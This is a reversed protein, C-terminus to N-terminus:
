VVLHSIVDKQATVHPLFRKMLPIVAPYLMMIVLFSTWLGMDLPLLARILPEHTVLVMISYRGIYSFYPLHGTHMCLAILCLIGCLGTIYCQVIQLVPTEAHHWGTAVYVIAIATLVKPTLRAQMKRSRFIHGTIFFPMYSLMRDISAPLTPAHDTAFISGMLLALLLVAWDAKVAKRMAYFLLNGLFLAWLFWLPINPYRADPMLFAWLTAWGEKATNFHMGLTNALMTPLLVSTTIYFFLFPILLRDTKKAAFTAIGGYDKFFFGSLFFYLPMRILTLYSDTPLEVGYAGQLHNLVVLSICLGKALDFYEIRM